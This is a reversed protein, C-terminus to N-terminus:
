VFKETPRDVLDVVKHFLKLQEEMDKSMTTNQILSFIQDSSFYDAEPVLQNRMRVFNNFDSEGM